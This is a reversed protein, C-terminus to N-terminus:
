GIRFLSLLIEGTSQALGSPGVTVTVDDRAPWNPDYISFAITDGEVGYGYAVVQHSQSMGWPSLGHHRVLGVRVLRGADIRARITPAEGEISRRAARDVPVAGLWWYRLPTWLWDLSRVQRNVLTRFLPSGNAPPVADGPIPRGAEFRERVYWAMGGCLGASADGIGLWRPDIPGFRVTPGPPFRNAFRLGRTSPLFGAVANSGAMDLGAYGDVM